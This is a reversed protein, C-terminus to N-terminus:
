DKNIFKSVQIKNINATRAKILEGPGLWKNINDFLAVYPNLLAVAVMHPSKDALM